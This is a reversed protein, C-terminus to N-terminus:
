WFLNHDVNAVRLFSPEDSELSLKQALLVDHLIYTDRPGACLRAVPQWSRRIKGPRKHLELKKVNFTMSNCTILYRGGASGTVKIAGKREYEKAQPGTLCALFLERAKDQAAQAERRRRDYEERQRAQEEPDPTWPNTIVTWEVPSEWQVTAGPPIYYSGGGGGAGWAQISNITYGTPATWTVAYRSAPGSGPEGDQDAV